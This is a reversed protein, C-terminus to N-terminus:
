TGAGRNFVLETMKPDYEQLEHCKLCLLRWESRKWLWEIPKDYYWRRKHLHAFTLGFTSGCFECRVIEHAVCYAKMEKNAKQNVTLRKMNVSRATITTTTIVKRPRILGTNLATTTVGAPTIPL